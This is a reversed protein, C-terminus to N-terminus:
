HDVGALACSVAPPYYGLTGYITIMWLQMFVM